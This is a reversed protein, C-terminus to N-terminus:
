FNLSFPANSTDCLRMSAFFQQTRGGPEVAIDSGNVSCIQSGM